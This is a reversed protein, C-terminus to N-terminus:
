ELEFRVTVNVKLGVEGPAMETAPAADAMAMKMMPRGIPAPLEIGESIAVIRKLKMGAARAYIEARARATAVAAARAEDLAAEPKDLRFDPGEIQNAGAKVLTDVLQGAGAVDRLRLALTNTAQYGILVPQRNNEYNYQPQLSLGRTQMDREAVGAKRVAAMVASMAKANGAMAAAATPASTMVGGALEVLDPARVVAGEATLTLTAPESKPAASQAALPAAVVAALMAPVMATMRM